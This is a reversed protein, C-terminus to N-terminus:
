GADTHVSSGPSDPSSALAPQTPQYIVRIAGRSALEGFWTPRDNVVVLRAVAEAELENPEVLLISEGDQLDHLPAWDAPGLYVSLGLGYEPREETPFFETEITRM